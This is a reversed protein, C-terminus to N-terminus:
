RDRSKRRDETWVKCPKGEKNKGPIWGAWRADFHQPRPNGFAGKTKRRRAAPSEGILGYM